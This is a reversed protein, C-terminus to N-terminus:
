LLLLRSFIGLDLLAILWFAIPDEIYEDALRDAWIDALAPLYRLILVAAIGLLLVGTWRLYAPSPPPLRGPDISNWALVAVAGSLVFLGLHLLFFRENNGAEALYHAGLIYQPAMYAAMLAPGLAVLGAAPYRRFALVGALLLLPGVIVLTFIDLGIGQNQYTQTYRYDIVGAALPGFLANLALGGALVFCGSTLWGRTGPM